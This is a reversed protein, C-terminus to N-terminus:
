TGSQQLASYHESGVRSQHSVGDNPLEVEAGDSANCFDSQDDKIIDVEADNYGVDFESDDPESDNLFDIESGETDFEFDLEFMMDEDFYTEALDDGNDDM